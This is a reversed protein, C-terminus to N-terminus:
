GVDQVVPVLTSTSETAVIRTCFLINLRIRLINVNTLLNYFLVYCKRTYRYTLSDLLNLLVEEKLWSNTWTQPNTAAKTASSTRTTAAAM